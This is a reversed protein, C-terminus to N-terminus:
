GRCGIVRVDYIPHELMSLAPNRAFMWGRFEAAGGNQETIALFAAADQAQNAPRVFCAQVQIDITGFRTSQGTKVSLTAARAYVKDLVQLEATGRPIWAPDAPQAQAPVALLAVSVLWGRIV